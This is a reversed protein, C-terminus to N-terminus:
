RLQCWVARKGDFRVMTVLANTRITLRYQKSGNPNVADAIARLFDRPSSRRGDQVSMAMRHHSQINDCDSYAANIDQPFVAKLDETTINAVPQGDRVSKAAAVMALMQPDRTMLSLDM